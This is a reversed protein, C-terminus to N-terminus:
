LSLSGFGFEMASIEVWVVFTQIVRNVGSLHNLISRPPYLLAQRARLVCKWPDIEYVAKPGLKPVLLFSRLFNLALTPCLHISSDRHNAGHAWSKHFWGWIPILLQIFKLTVTIFITYINDHRRREKPCVLWISFANYLWSRFLPGEILMALCIILPYKVDGGRGWGSCM